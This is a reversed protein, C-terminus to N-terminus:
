SDQPCWRTRDGRVDWSSFAEDAWVYHQIIRIYFRALGMSTCPYSIYVRYMLWPKLLGVFYEGFFPCRRGLVLEPYNVSGRCCRITSTPSGDMRIPAICIVFIVWVQVPISKLYDVHKRWRFQFPYQWAVLCWIFDSPFFKVWVGPLNGIYLRWCSFGQQPCWIRWLAWFMKFNFIFGFPTVVYFSLLLPMASLPTEQLANCNQPAQAPCIGKVTLNCRLAFNGPGVLRSTHLARGSGAEPSSFAADFVPIPTCKSYNNYKGYLFESFRCFQTSVKTM